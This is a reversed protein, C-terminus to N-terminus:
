QQVQIQKEIDELQEKTLGFESMLHSRIIDPRKEAFEHLVNINEEWAEISEINEWRAISQPIEPRIVAALEDIKAHIHNPEFNSQLLTLMTEAFRKQLGENEMLNKFLVVANDDSLVFRLMNHAIPDENSGLLGYGMGWDLDFVIWRWRGDHGKPANPVYGGKKRWVTLNNAFSDTNAYYVQYAVYELFNDMDMLTEIYAIHEDNTMDEKQVFTIMDEYHMSDKETGVDMEFHVGSKTYVSMMVLDQEKVNYKIDIYNEDFKERINHIGWYEGNLLVISPKYGQVDLGRDKILEHMLGDRMLTSDNDNGSSRLVLLNFQYYPLDEFIKSYIRSQGYDSRPYIRLSKQPMSRTFSGNIRVGINQRFNISGDEHFFEMSGEKEHKRGKQFYNGTRFYDEEYMAGPVYIGGYEDFFDRPEMALSIVPLGSKFLEEDLIYTYSLPTGFNGGIYSAATVTVAKKVEEPEFSFADRLPSTQYNSIMPQALMVEKSIKIPETYQTSKLTPKSGDLTYYIQHNKATRLELEFPEAYVGGPKRFEPYPIGIEFDVDDITKLKESLLNLDGIDNGILSLRKQLPLEIIPQISKIQNNRANLDMLTDVSELADLAKVQNGRINLATLNPHNALPSLDVVDNARVNLKKLKVLKEAFEISTLQNAELNLSEINESHLEISQLQNFSLDLSVLETLGALQSVNTLINGSLNLEKLNTFHELGDISTLNQNSLDLTEISKVINKSLKKAQLQEKISEETMPDFEIGRDAIYYFLIWM